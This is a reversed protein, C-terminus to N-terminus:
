CFGTKHRRIIPDDVEVRRILRIIMPVAGYVPEDGDQGGAGYGIYRIGLASTIAHLRSNSFVNAVGLSGCQVSQCTCGIETFHYVSVDSSRSAPALRSGDFPTLSGFPFVSIVM